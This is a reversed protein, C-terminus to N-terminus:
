RRAVVFVRPEREPEALQEALAKLRAFHVEEWGQDALARRVRELDFATNYVLEEFREYYGDQNRIFGSIKMFAKGLGEDYFGRQIVTMIEGDELTMNSWRRLGAGTNLDFIFCGGDLVAAAACRFCNELADLDALHNLADFTSVILGYRRELRFDAADGLIFRAAGTTLYDAANEGAHTLMHPSLDLGDVRYGHELFHLALQGTGCCLDLVDRNAAAVPLEEYYARIPPAAQRAFGQWTANYVRAFGQGYAQM